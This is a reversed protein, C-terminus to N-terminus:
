VGGAAGGPRAQGKSGRGKKSRKNARVGPM